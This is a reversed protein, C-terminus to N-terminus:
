TQPLKIEPPPSPLEDHYAQAAAAEIADLDNDSTGDVPEEQQFTTALSRYKYLMDKSIGYQGALKPKIDNIAIGNIM